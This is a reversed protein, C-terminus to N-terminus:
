GAPEIQECTEAIVSALTAGVVETYIEPEPFLLGGGRIDGIQPTSGFSSLFRQSNLTEPECLTMLLGGTVICDAGGCGSKADLVTNVLFDETEVVYSQDGEDSLIFIVLVSGEDRLFGSNTEANAPHLAWAAAAANFEFASGAQRVGETGAATFWDSLGQKEDLHGTNAAYYFKSDWQVLRGQLGSGLAGAMGETPRRYNADIVSDSEEPVCNNETHSDGGSEFSSTTVAV